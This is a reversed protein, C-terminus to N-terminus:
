RDYNAFTRSTSSKGFVREHLALRNRKRLHHHVSDLLAPMDPCRHNRTVMAHLEQWEREIRNASPCYPPLFHLKFLAGYRQIFAVTRRSQHISFNDLILHIARATIHRRGLERLLACFLESTKRPADAWVLERTLANLAGAVYHKENNGPTLVVRQSGRLMWDRGIRPNLHIDVEDCFYVPEEASARREVRRIRRLVRQRQAQPWPCRVIPRPSGLRAGIRRLLRGITCVAVRVLGRRHLEKCLLERTWTPRRWGFSQPSERLVDVLTSRFTDDIKHCGNNRRQDLLGAFGHEAFRQAAKVVTSVALDLARAVESKRLGIALKAVAQFRLATATDGSKRGIRLLQRRTHRPLQPVIAL